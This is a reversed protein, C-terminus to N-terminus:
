KFEIAIKVKNRIEKFNILIGVKWDAFKPLTNNVFQGLDHISAVKILEGGVYLFYNTLESEKYNKLGSVNYVYNSAQERNIGHNIFEFFVAVKYIDLLTFIAKTGVGEAKKTPVVFGKIMWERLRERRISLIKVVDFTSFERKEIDPM